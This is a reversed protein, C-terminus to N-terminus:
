EEQQSADRANRDARAVEQWAHIEARDLGVTLGAHDVHERARDLLLHRNEWGGPQAARRGL